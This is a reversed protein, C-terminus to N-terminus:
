RLSAVCCDRALHNQPGGMGQDRLSESGIVRLSPRKSPRTARRFRVAASLAPDVVKHGLDVFYDVLMWAVLPEDEVILVRRARPPAITTWAARPNTAPM